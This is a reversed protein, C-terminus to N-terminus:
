ADVRHKSSLLDVDGLLPCNQMHSQASWNSVLNEDISYVNHRQHMANQVLHGDEGVAHTASLPLAVRPFGIRLTMLMPM